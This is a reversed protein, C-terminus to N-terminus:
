GLVCTVRDSFKFKQLFSITLSPIVYLSHDSRQQFYSVKSSLGSHPHSDPLLTCGTCSIARLTNLSHVSSWMAWVYHGPVFTVNWLFSHPVSKSLAKKPSLIWGNGSELKPLCCWSAKLLSTISVFKKDSSLRAERFQILTVRFSHLGPLFNNQWIHCLMCHFLIFLDCYGFWGVLFFCFVNFGLCGPFYSFSFCLFISKDKLLTV